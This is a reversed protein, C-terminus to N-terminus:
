LERQYGGQTARTCSLIFLMHTLFKKENKENEFELKPVLPLPVRPLKFAIVVRAAKAKQFRRLAKLRSAQL